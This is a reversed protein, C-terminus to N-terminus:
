CLFGGPRTWLRDPRRAAAPCARYCRHDRHGRPHQRQHKYGICLCFCHTLGRDPLDCSTVCFLDCVEPAINSAPTIPSFILDVFFDEDFRPDSSSGDLQAKTLRLVGSPVYGTHFGTRFMSVRVGARTVHRCRLLIDGQVPCDASFSASGESAKIWRLQQQPGQATGVAASDGVHSEGQAAATAILKGNKFLQIYPCCGPNGSESDTDTGFVPICNIIVRRLLLPESRPKVGDLMNSFYQIYRRQSPITLTDVSIKRRDAIYQLAEMPSPFEGIWAMVCAVLAATRGKGTLCHIVAVNRDDADLWSEVSTCIKFLLGLPPAPHGPFKYELVQDAFKAYDYAEESINWIMFRGEHRKKMFASVVDIDNGVQTGKGNGFDCPFSMTILNETVYTMDLEQVAKRTLKNPAPATTRPDIPGGVTSMLISTALEMDYNQRIEEAQKALAAAKEQTVKGAVEVFDKVNKQATAFWGWYDTSAPKQQEDAAVAGENESMIELLHTGLLLLASLAPLFSPEVKSQIVVKGPVTVQRKLVEDRPLGDM